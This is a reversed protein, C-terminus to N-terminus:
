AVLQPFWQLFATTVGGLTGAVLIERKRKLEQNKEGKQIKIKLKALFTKLRFRCRSKLYVIWTNSVKRREKQTFIKFYEM